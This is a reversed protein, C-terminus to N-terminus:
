WPKPFDLSSLVCNALFVPDDFSQFLPFVGRILGVGAGLLRLPGADKHWRDHSWQSLSASLWGSSAAMYPRGKPVTWVMKVSLRPRTLGV